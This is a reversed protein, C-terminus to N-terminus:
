GSVVASQMRSIQDAAEALSTAVHTACTEPLRERAKQASIRVGWLGVIIKLEPFRARLRKCLYRAHMVALPPLVSICVVQAQHSAVKEVMESALSTVSVSMADVQKQRLLHVLMQAAIEDAPDKAPLCLVCCEAPASDTAGEESDTFEDILELVSGRIFSEREPSLDGRRRDQEALTLAPVLVEDYLETLSHTLLYDEVVETAEDQDFALLRQYFRSEAGLVPEDGLLV